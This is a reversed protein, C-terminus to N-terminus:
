LLYSLTLHAATHADRLDVSAIRGIAELRYNLTNRHIHLREMTKKPSYLCEVYVKLTPGYETHHKKDHQALTALAPHLYSEPSMQNRISDIIEGLACDKYLATALPPATHGAAYVAQRYYLPAKLLDRFLLSAGVQMDFGELAHCLMGLVRSQDNEDELGIALLVLTNEYVVMAHRALVSQVLQQIRPLARTKKGDRPTAVFVTYNGNLDTKLMDNWYDVTQRLEIRGSLLDSLFAARVNPLEVTASGQQQFEKGLVRGMLEIDALQQASAQSEGFLVCTYGVVRDDVMVAGITRAHGAFQDWDIYIPTRAVYGKDIIGAKYFLHILEPNVKRHQQLYNWVYDDEQPADPVAALLNYQDDTISVVLGLHRHAVQLIPLFGGQLLAQLLAQEYAASTNNQNQTM